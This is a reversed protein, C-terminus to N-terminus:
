VRGRAWVGVERAPLSLSVHVRRAPLRHGTVVIAAVVRVARALLRARDGTLPLMATLRALALAGLVAAPPVLLFMMKFPMYFSTSGARGALSALAGACALTAAGFGGVLRAARERVALVSGIAALALFA